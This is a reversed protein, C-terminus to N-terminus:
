IIKNNEFRFEFICNRSEASNAQEDCTERREISIEHPSLIMQSASFIEEYSFNDV